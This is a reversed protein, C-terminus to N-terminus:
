KQLGEIKKKAKEINMSANEHNPVLELVKKWSDIAEEYKGDTYFRIGALYRADVEKEILAEIRPASIKGLYTKAERNEPEVNIVKKFSIVANDIDGKNYAAMGEKLWPAVFIDIKGKTEKRWRLAETNRADVLLMENFEEMAHPYNGNKYAAIGEALMKNLIEGKLRESIINKGKLKESIINLEEKLTARDAGLEVANKFQQLGQDTEGQRFYAVGLAHAIKHDKNYLREAEKLEKIASANDDKELYSIGLRYHTVSQRRDASFVACGNIILLLLIILGKNM